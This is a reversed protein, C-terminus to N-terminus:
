SCSQPAIKYSWCIGSNGLNTLSSLFEENCPFYSCVPSTSAMCKLLRFIGDPIDNWSHFTRECWVIFDRVGEHEKELSVLLEDKAETYLDLSCYKHLMNRLNKQLWAHEKRSVLLSILNFSIISYHLM